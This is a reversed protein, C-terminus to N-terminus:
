QLSQHRPVSFCLSLYVFDFNLLETVFLQAKSFCTVHQRVM